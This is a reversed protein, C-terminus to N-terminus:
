GLQKADLAGRQDFLQALVAQGLRRLHASLGSRADRETPMARADLALLGIVRQFVTMVVMSTLLRRSWIRRMLACVSIGAMRPTPSAAPAPFVENPSRSLCDMSPTALASSFAPWIAAPNSRPSGPM